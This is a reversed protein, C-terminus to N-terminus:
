PPSLPRGCDGVVDIRGEVSPAIPSSARVADVLTLAFNFTDFPIAQRDTGKTFALHGDLGAAVFSNVVVTVTTAALQDIGRARDYVVQGGVEIHVVRTGETTVKQSAADIQQVTGECDITYRGGSVQLVPGGANNKLDPPLQAASRELVSKLQTGTLTMVEHDDHFPFWGEVDADTLDGAPYIKGLKADITVPVAGSKIVGGRIAGANVFSMAIEGNMTAVSQRLVDAMFNGVAAEGVWVTTIRTDIDVSSSGIVMGAVPKPGAPGCGVLAVAFGALTRHWRRM